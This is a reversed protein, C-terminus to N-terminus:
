DQCKLKFKIIIHIIITEKKEFTVAGTMCKCVCLFLILGNGRLSFSFREKEAYQYSEALAIVAKAPAFTCL